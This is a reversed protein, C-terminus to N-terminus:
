LLVGQGNAKEWISENVLIEKKSTLAAKQRDILESEIKDWDEFSMMGNNYKQRAIQSRLVSAQEFKQDVKLKEISLVFKSYTSKLNDLVDMETVQTQLQDAKWGELSSKVQANDKGGSYLPITLNLGVSWKNYNLPFQEDYKGLSGTLNLTPYFNARYKEVTIRSIEQAALSKQYENSEMVLDKFDKKLKFNNQEVELGEPVIVEDSPEKFGILLYLATKYNRYNELAQTVEFLAQQYYAESLLVSGKNELGSSYRLEVIKLNEKRRELIKKTLIMQDYSYRLLTFAQKLDSSVAIKAMKLDLSSSLTRSQAEKIKNKDLFGAFLNQTINLSAASSNQAQQSSLEAYSRSTTLGANVEPLFGSFAVDELVKQAQYNSEALKISINNERALKICEQWTLIKEGAFASSGGIFILVMLLKM